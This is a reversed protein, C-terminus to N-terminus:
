GAPQWPGYCQSVYPYYGAPNPCYWASTYTAPAGYGYYPYGWGYGYWGAYGPGWGGGWGRGGGHWGGGHWGGGHSASAHVTGHAGGGGHGGGHWGHAQAALPFALALTAAGTLLAARLGSPRRPNRASDRRTMDM